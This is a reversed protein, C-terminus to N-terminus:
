RTAYAIGFVALSARCVDQATAPLTCTEAWSGWDDGATYTMVSRSWNSGGSGPGAGKAGPPADITVETPGVGTVVLGPTRSCALGYGTLNDIAASAFFPCAQGDRCGVCASTETGVVSETDGTATARTVSWYEKETPPVPSTPPVVVIGGSGDVGYQATCSWGDPALVHMLGGADSYISVARATAPSVPVQETTPVTPPRRTQNAAYGTPCVVVPVTQLGTAGGASLSPVLSFPSPKPAAHIAALAPPEVRYRDEFERLLSGCLERWRAPLTCTASWRSDLRGPTLGM